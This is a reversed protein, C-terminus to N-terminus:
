ACLLAPRLSLRDVLKADVFQIGRILLVEM